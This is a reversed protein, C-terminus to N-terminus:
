LLYIQNSVLHNTPKARNPINIAGLARDSSIEMQPAPSGIAARTRSSCRVQVSSSSPPLALKVVVSFFISGEFFNCHVYLAVGVGASRYCFLTSLIYGPTVWKRLRPSVLAFLLYFFLMSDHFPLYRSGRGAALGVWGIIVLCRVYM